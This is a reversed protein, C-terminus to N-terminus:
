TRKKQFHCNDFSDKCTYILSGDDHLMQLTNKLNYELNFESYKKLLPAPYITITLNIPGRSLSTPLSGSVQMTGLSSEIQFNKFNIIGRKVIAEAIVNSITFEGLKEGITPLIIDYNGLINVANIQILGDFDKTINKFNEGKIIVALDSGKFFLLNDSSINLEFSNTSFRSDITNLLLLKFLSIEGEISPIELSFHQNEQFPQPKTRLFSYQLNKIEFDGLKSISLDQFELQNGLPGATAIFRNTFEELPFFLIIGFLFAIFGIIYPAIKQLISFKEKKLDLEGILDANENIKLAEKVSLPTQTKKFENEM